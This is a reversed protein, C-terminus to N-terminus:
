LQKLCRSGTAIRSHRLMVGKCLVQGSVFARGHRWGTIFDISISGKDYIRQQAAKMIFKVAEDSHRMKEGILSLSM